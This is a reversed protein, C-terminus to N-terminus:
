QAYNVSYAKGNTTKVTRGNYRELAKQWGDFIANQRNQPPQGSKGFGKRALWIIATKLNQDLTGENRKVPATLGLGLGTVLCMLKHLTQKGPLYHAPM